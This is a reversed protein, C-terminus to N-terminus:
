DYYAIPMDRKILKKIYGQINEQDELWRIMEADTNRNLKLHIQKTNTKDYKRNARRQAETAM